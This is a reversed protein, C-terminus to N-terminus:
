SRDRHFTRIRAIFGAVPAEFEGAGDVIAALLVPEPLTMVREFLSLEESTMTPVLAEAFRGMLFDMERTGRHVARYLARRRRVAM